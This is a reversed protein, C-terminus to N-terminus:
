GICFTVIVLMFCCLLFNVLGLSRNLCLARDEDIVFMVTKQTKIQQTIIANFINGAAAANDGV